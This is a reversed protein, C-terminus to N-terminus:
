KRKFRKVKEVLKKIKSFKRRKVTRKKYLM